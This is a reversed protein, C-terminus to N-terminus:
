KGYFKKTDIGTVELVLKYITDGCYLAQKERESQSMKQKNQHQWMKSLLVSMLIRISARLGADTFDPDGLKQADYEWLADEIEELVPSLKRGLKEQM